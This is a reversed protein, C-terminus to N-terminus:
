SRALAVPRMAHGRGVQEGMTISNTSVFAVKNSTGQIYQAAKIYWCTVYDMKGAGKVNGYLQNTESKQESNQFRAGIFPPNGLIYDIEEKPTFEEWDVQLANDNLIHASKVLPLSPRQLDIAVSLDINMQHDILWMATEAIRAPFEEIEIGYFQEVNVLSLMEGM